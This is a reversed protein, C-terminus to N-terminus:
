KNVYKIDVPLRMMDIGGKESENRISEIPKIVDIEKRLKPDKSRFFHLLIFENKKFDVETNLDDFIDLFTDVDKYFDGSRYQSANIFHALALCYFGCANNMLSQVDKKTYPLNVINTLKKSAKKVNEPPPIGYPDFYIPLIKGNPTKNIQLFVWHTGPNLQGKEDVSDEMNIFYSKNFEPKILEDKFLVGGLPIGMKSSLDKIQIDTLSM